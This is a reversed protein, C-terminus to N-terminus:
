WRWGDDEPMRKTGELLLEARRRVEPDPDGLARRLLPRYEAGGERIAESAAERERFTDAGLQRVVQERDGPSPAMFWTWVLCCVLVRTM